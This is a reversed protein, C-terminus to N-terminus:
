LKKFSIVWVFPNDFWSERGNIEQWLLCYWDSASLNGKGEVFGEKIIDSISIDELKEVKINTIELRMRCAERPMFISPEWRYNDPKVSDSKYAYKRGFLLATEIDLLKWTERM